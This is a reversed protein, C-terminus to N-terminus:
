AVRRVAGDALTTLAARAAAPLADAAALAREHEAAILAEVSALSGTAAVIEAVAAAEAPGASSDGVLRDLERRQATSALREARVLLLTRKGERVDDVASKGTVAPDGFLGLVDDRLQFAMGIADGFTRLAPEVTAAAEPEAIAAGLLLPRTVTYRASKLLAVKRSMTETCAPDAAAVLDLYQGAMVECRLDSFVRRARRWSEPPVCMEDMLDDALVLALDGALVAASIGFWDDDGHWRAARHLDAFARQATPHGRRTPSRDMVDDHLLAFTHLMELAAAAKVVEDDHGAGTARHGWYVFSPRLRKGGAGVLRDIAAAVAPLRTDLAALLDTGAALRRHLVENVAAAVDFRAPAEGDAAVRPVGPSGARLWEHPDFGRESLEAIQLVSWPSLSGPEHTARRVLDPWPVWEWADAEAPSPAPAGDIEAILVPCLEHEVVGNAMEARYAFDPLVVEARRLGVGLEDALRRAVAAVVSEGLQPHGCCANTWTSPWTPKSAARRTILLNGNRDVVHCSFALHLPTDRHHADLKDIVGTPSGWRDVVVVHEVARRATVGSPPAARLAGTVTPHLTDIPLRRPM